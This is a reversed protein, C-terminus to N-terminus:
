EQRQVAYMLQNLVTNSRLRVTLPDAPGTSRTYSGFFVDRKGGGVQSVVGRTWKDASKACSLAAAVAVAVEIGIGNWRM